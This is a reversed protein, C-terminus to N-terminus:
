ATPSWATYVDLRKDASSDERRRRDARIRHAQVDGALLAAVRSADNPLLRLTVKEWPTKGGWYRTTARLSSGTARPTACSSTRAPASRRRAATSTRPRDGERSAELHDRGADHRVADASVAGGDQLPDHVSRRRDIEKIQKTYATFPSPSNPVQPVREISAVVDAATFDSGDHFKVGKRLKFEWTLRISPRGSRDRPGPDAQQSRTASRGPLRFHAGRRQQEADPQSLASRNRHRRRRHRNHPGPSPQCRGGIARSCRCAASPLLCTLPRLM